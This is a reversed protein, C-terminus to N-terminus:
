LVRQSNPNSQFKKTLPVVEGDDNITEGDETTIDASRTVETTITPIYSSREGEEIDAFNYYASGITGSPM